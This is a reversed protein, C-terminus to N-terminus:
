VELKSSLHTMLLLQGMSEFFKDVGDEKTDLSKTLATFFVKQSEDSAQMFSELIYEFTLTHIEANVEFDISSTLSIGEDKLLKKSKELPTM